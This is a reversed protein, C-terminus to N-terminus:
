HPQAEQVIWSSGPNNQSSILYDTLFGGTREHFGGLPEKLLAKSYGLGM